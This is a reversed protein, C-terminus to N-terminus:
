GKVDEFNKGDYVLNGGTGLIAAAFALEQCQGPTLGKNFNASYLAAKDPHM